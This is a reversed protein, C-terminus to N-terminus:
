GKRTPVTTATPTRKTLHKEFWHHANPEDNFAVIEQYGSSRYMAIAETLNRNTDLRVTRVGHGRVRRELESLLRRGLGLGRADPAVWLRKIEAPRDGHFRLGGCGIAEGRLFVVLLLGKPSRLERAISAVSVEGVLGNDFRRDLEELYSEFCYTAAASTPDELRIEVMSASLLREVTAMADILQTRQRENLPELLSSALEDSMRDLKDREAEGARTLEVYRVRHDEPAPQVRILEESELRRLLRSLYGPDLDLRERITRVDAGDGLDWLVRSAGLPRSQALYQENLAGIRQTVVRNFSRVQEVPEREM